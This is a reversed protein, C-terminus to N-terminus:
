GIFPTDSRSLLFKTGLLHRARTAIESQNKSPGVIVRTIPLMAGLDDFLAIYPYEVSGVARTRIKKLPAVVQDPHELRMKEAINEKGPIAIVRVEQEERFGEHKFRTAASLFAFLTEASIDVNNDRVARIVAETSSDLLDPFMKEITVDTRAYHVETLRLYTWYHKGFESNLLDILKGTDFVICYRESGGYARWQSLLGNEREYAQRSPHFCFSAVFPEALPEISTAKFATQFMAEIFNRTIQEVNSIMARRAHRNAGGSLQVAELARTTLIETMPQRLLMVESEDNLHAFHTAWLTNSEVIGRLGNFNTYHHLEPHEAAFGPAAMETESEM